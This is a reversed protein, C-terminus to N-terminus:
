QVGWSGQPPPYNNGIKISRTVVFINSAISPNGSEWFLCASKQKWGLYLNSLFKAYFRIAHTWDYHLNEWICNFTVFQTLTLISASNNSVKVEVYSCEIWLMFLYFFIIPFLQWQWIFHWVIPLLSYPWNVTLTGPLSSAIYLHPIDLMAIHYKLM